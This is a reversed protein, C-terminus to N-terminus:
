VSASMASVPTSGSAPARCGSPTSSPSTPCPRRLLEVASVRCVPSSPSPWGRPRRSSCPWVSVSPPHRDAFHLDCFIVNRGGAISIMFSNPIRLTAGALGAIAPLTYLLSKDAAFPFYGMAHLNQMQVIIISWYLWVAFACLLNPISIWLNRSAISSGQENWFKENEPEWFSLTMGRGSDSAQHNSNREM